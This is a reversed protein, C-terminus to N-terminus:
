KSRQPLGHKFQYVKLMALFIELYHTCADPEVISLKWKVTNTHVTAMIQINGWGYLNAYAALQVKQWEARTGPKWDALTTGNKSRYIFDPM